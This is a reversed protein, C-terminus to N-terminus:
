TSPVYFRDCYEVGVLVEESPDGFLDSATEGCWQEYGYQCNTRISRQNPTIEMDM